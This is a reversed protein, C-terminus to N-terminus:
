PTPTESLVGSYFAILFVAAVLVIVAATILTRRNV